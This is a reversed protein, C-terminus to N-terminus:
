REAVGDRVPQSLAHRLRPRSASRRRRGVAQARARRLSAGARAVSACATGVTPLRPGGATSIRRAQVQRSAQLGEGHAWRRATGAIEFAPLLSLRLLTCAPSTRESISVGIEVALHQLRAGIQAPGPWALSACIPALAPCDSALVSATARCSTSWRVNVQFAM